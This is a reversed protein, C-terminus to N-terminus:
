GRRAKVKRGKRLYKDFGQLFDLQRKDSDNWRRIELFGLSLIWYYILAMDTENVDYRRFFFKPIRRAVFQYRM